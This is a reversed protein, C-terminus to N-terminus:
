RFAGLLHKRMACLTEVRVRLGYLAIATVPSMKLDSSMFVIPGRSTLAFICRIFGGTPKWLLKVALSSVDELAGSVQCPTPEFLSLSDFVESLKVKDGDQRPRGPGPHDPREAPFSAGYRKKARVLMTVLPAKCAVSWVSDALKFVAAV